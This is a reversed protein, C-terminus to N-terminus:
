IELSCNIFDSTGFTEFHSAPCISFLKGRYDKVNRRQVKFSMIAGSCSEATHCPTEVEDLFSAVCHLLVQRIKM